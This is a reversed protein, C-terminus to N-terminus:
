AGTGVTGDPNIWVYTTSSPDIAITQDEALDVTSGDTMRYTGASLALSIPPAADLAEMDGYAEMVVFVYRHDIMSLTQQGGTLKRPMSRGFESLAPATLGAISRGDLLSRLRAAISLSLRGRTLDDNADVYIRLLTTVEILRSTSTQDYERDSAYIVAVYPTTPPQYVILGEQILWSAGVDPITRALRVIEDLVDAVADSPVLGGPTPAAPDITPAVPHPSGVKRGAPPKPPPPASMSTPLERYSM